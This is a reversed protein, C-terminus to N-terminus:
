GWAFSEWYTIGEPGKALKVAEDFAARGENVLKLAWWLGVPLPVQTEPLGVSAALDIVHALLGIQLPRLDVFIMVIDSPGACDAPDNVVYYYRCAAPRSTYAGCRNDDTLFVCRHHGQMYSLRTLKRDMLPTMAQQVRAGIDPVRSAHGVLLLAEVLSISTLLYCCHACGPTCSACFKEARKQAIPDLKGYIPLLRTGLQKYKNM